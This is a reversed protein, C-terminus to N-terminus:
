EDLSFPLQQTQSGDVNYKPFAREVMDYFKRWSTNARALALLGSFFERLRPEGVEDTLFQFHKHDRYGKENKPNRRELEKLLGPAMRKYILDKTWNGIVGPKKQANEPRWEWSNLRFIQKYLEIPFTVIYKKAEALLFKELIKELADAVRVNQFGTAEDVLAIIGITAFGRVLIESREAYIKQQSTLAGAKDADTFVYCIQPLIEARYGYTKRGGAMEFVIPQSSTILEKPIFPNLNKARLFVPTQFLNSDENDQREKYKPNGKRGLARLVGERSLVREGTDLNYCPMKFGAITLEGQYDAKPLKKISM